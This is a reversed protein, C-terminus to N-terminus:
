SYHEDEYYDEEENEDDLGLEPLLVSLPINYKLAIGEADLEMLAPLTVWVFTEKMVPHDQDAEAVNKTARDYLFTYGNGEQSFVNFSIRNLRDEKQRLEERMVDVYFATGEIDVEPLHREM